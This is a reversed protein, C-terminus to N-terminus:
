WWSCCWSWRPTPAARPTPRGALPRIQPQFADDAPAPPAEPGPRRAPPTPSDCRRPSASRCWARPMSKRRGYRAGACPKTKV